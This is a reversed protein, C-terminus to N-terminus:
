SFVFRLIEEFVLELKMDLGVEFIADGSLGDRTLNPDSEEADPFVEPFRLPEDPLPFNEPSM